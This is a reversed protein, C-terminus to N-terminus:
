EHERWENAAKVLPCNPEGGTCDSGRDRILGETDYAWELAGDATTISSEELAKTIDADDWCEDIYTCSGIGVRKDSRIAEILASM